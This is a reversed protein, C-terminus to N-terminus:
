PSDPALPLRAAHRVFHIEVHPDVISFVVRYNGYSMQRLETGVPPSEWALPYRKPLIALSEM